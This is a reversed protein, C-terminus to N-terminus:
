GFNRKGRAGRNKIWEGSLLVEDKWFLLMMAGYVSDDRATLCWGADASEHVNCIMTAIYCSNVKDSAFSLKYGEDLRTMLGKWFLAEESQSVWEDFLEHEADTVTFDIFGKFDPNAVRESKSGTRDKSPRPM